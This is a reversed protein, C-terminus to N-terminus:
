TSAARSCARGGRPRGLHQVRGRTHHQGRRDSRGDPRGPRARRPGCRWCCRWTRSRGSPSWPRGARRARRPLRGRSRRAASGAPPPLEPRGAGTQGHVHGGRVPRPAAPRDAGAAVPVENREVHELVRIANATTKALTQNGAVTTVGVLELEPSALALLLAIADDHGPDCDLLIRTVACRGGRGDPPPSPGSVRRRWRGPRAPVPWHKTM